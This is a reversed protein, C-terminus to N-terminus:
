KFIAMLVLLYAVLTCVSILTLVVQVVQQNAYYVNLIVSFVHIDMLNQPILVFVIADITIIILNLHLTFAHKANFSLFAHIM